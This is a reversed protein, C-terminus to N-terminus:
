ELPKVKLNKVLKKTLKHSESWSLNVTKRNANTIYRIPSTSGDKYVAKVCFTYELKNDYNRIGIGEELGSFILHKEPNEFSGLYVEVNKLTQLKPNTWSVEIYKEHFEVDFKTPVDHETLANFTTYDVVNFSQKDKIVKGTIKDKYTFVMKKKGAEFFSFNLAKGGINSIYWGPFKKYGIEYRSPNSLKARVITGALINGSVVDKDFSVFSSAYLNSICFTVLALFLCVIKRLNKM